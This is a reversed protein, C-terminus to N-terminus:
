KEPCSAKELQDCKYVLQKYRWYGAMERQDSYHPSLPNENQGPPLVSESRFLPNSLEVAHTYTGRITEPIGPLPKLDIVGQSYTWLNMQPGRKSTLENLAKILGEIIAEDRSKGNLYNHSLPLSSKAGGLVRYLMSEGILQDFLDPVGYILSIAKLDSFEDGFIVERVAKFWADFISKAVSGNVAHNDWARLYSGAQLIRKDAHTAGLKGLATILFPKLAEANSDHTAIDQTIDRVQEFDLLSHPKIVQEIRPMHFVAGWVPFDGNDWWEAPKNNWSILYGQKPNVIQPMRSFPLFGLWDFEGTGPTPLRPDHGAARIPVRGCHWYGIDGNVAAALFNHNTYIIEALKAFEGLTKARNFGWIAEFTKFEHGAYSAAYSYAITSKDIPRADWDTLPGHITRAVTIRLPEEGKIKFVETRKKLDRYAGKYFYQDRNERNLKEAFLDVMDSIGSTMSWAVYDNHGIIVGPIGAFGMGAVNLEGTSYHIEHAIQPTSFGMQPNGVLIPNGSASRGPGIVWCFSGWKTPLNHTRAYDLIARQQAVHAVRRLPEDPLDNLFLRSKVENKRKSRKVVKDNAPITTPSTQDNFYYVDNFLKNAEAEGFRLKLAKLVRTNTAEFGGVSGYRSALMVGIAISDTVKWQAPEIVGVKKFAEQLRNQSVTEKIRANVGDAYAQYGQKIDDALSDFIAQFESETYGTVRTQVDRQLAERGEIEALEGRGDRRFREMQYLRDQAVAYGSGYYAGRASKAFIHPVGFGDRIIIIGEGDLNLTQRNQAAARVVQDYPFSAPALITQVLVAALISVIASRKM